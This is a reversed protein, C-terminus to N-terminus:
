HKRFEKMSHLHHTLYPLNPVRGQFGVYLADPGQNSIDGFRM